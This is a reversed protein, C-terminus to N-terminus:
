CFIARAVQTRVVDEDYGLKQIKPRLARMVSDVDGLMRMQKFPETFPIDLAMALLNFYHHVEVGHTLQMKCHQRYCSHYPVVIADAGIERAEDFMRAQDDVPMPHLTQCHLGPGLAHQAEILKLGPIANLIQLMNRADTQRAENITHFHPIVRLNVERMRKKLADLHEVFLQSINSHRFPQRNVAHKRFQEDCDPCISLVTHPKARRFGFMAAKAMQKELDVDQFHKHLEGCCSEPGGLILCDLGIKQLIKRALMPVHPTYHALCSLHIILQSEPGNTPIETVYSFDDPALLSGVGRVTEFITTYSPRTSSM